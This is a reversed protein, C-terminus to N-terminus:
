GVMRILHLPYKTSNFSLELRNAGTKGIIRLIQSYAGGIPANEDVVIMIATNSYDCWIVNKKRPRQKRRRAEM